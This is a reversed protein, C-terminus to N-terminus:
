TLKDLSHDRHPTAAAPRSEDAQARNKQEYNWVHRNHHGCLIRLNEVLNPGGYSHPHVHDLQLDSKVNCPKGNAPDVYACGADENKKIVIKKTVAPIHRTKVELTPLPALQEFNPSAAEASDALKEILEEKSRCRHKYQLRELKQFLRESINLSLRLRDIDTYRIDDRKGPVPKLGILTKEVHRSSKNFCQAVLKMKESKTYSANSRFFSQLQSATALTLDGREIRQAVEPVDRILRMSSIRRQAGGASYGFHKVAMEFLSPYNYKLYLKRLEIERLHKLVLITSLKEQQVAEQTKQILESSELSKLNM